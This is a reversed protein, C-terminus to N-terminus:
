EKIAIQGVGYGAYSGIISFLVSYGVAHWFPKKTKLSYVIGAALGLASLGYSLNQVKKDKTTLTENM